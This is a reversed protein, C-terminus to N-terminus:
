LFADMQTEEYLRLLQAELDVVELRHSFCGKRTCGEVSGGRPLQMSFMPASCTNCILGDELLSIGCEPCFLNVQTGHKIDLETQHDFSGYIPDMYLDGEQSGFKAKVHISPHGGITVDPAMLLHGNPCRAHGVILSASPITIEVKDPERRAEDGNNVTM